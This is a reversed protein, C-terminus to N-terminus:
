GAHRLTADTLAAACHLPGARPRPRVTQIIDRLGPLVNPLGFSHDNWSVVQAEVPSLLLMGSRYGIFSWPANFM